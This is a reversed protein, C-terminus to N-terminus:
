IEANNKQVEAKKSKFKYILGLVQLAILPTMAVMSVVGFSDSLINSHELADSAGQALALVFTATMPGSAVGGSDFAIGVFIKPVFFTMILSLVFGPLIYHWLQIGPVAIRLMSLGVAFAVGISLTVLVTKRKIYGSTVDEIQHTLIYVAPETLIVLMGLLFGLGVLIAKNEHAALGHGIINGVNMFGGNVGVLFIALGLYTYLFGLAMRGFARRSLRFSIKQFIVFMVVVPFLAVFSQLIITPLAELFPGFVGPAISREPMNPVVSDTKVFLNLVLVGLIAGTSMVGVLGFSDEEASKSDRKMAAVGVSLALVIPVTLAGTTAGSADFGIALMDSSSFVALVAILGYTVILTVNLPLNKVIRLVGIALMIGTGISVAVLIVLMPIFGGMVGSVEAALVELDPEAVNIFFGLLFGVFIVYWLKNSKLFSMGMHNGFPQIGIEIGFLLISLGLIIALAGIIFQLLLVGPIPVLTFSLILVLIIIPAVAYLVEKIKKLLVYM